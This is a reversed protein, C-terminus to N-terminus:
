LTVNEATCHVNHAGYKVTIFECGAIKVPNPALNPRLSLAIRATWRGAGADSASAHRGLIEVGGTEGECDYFQHTILVNVLPPERWKNGIQETWSFLPRITERRANDSFRQSISNRSPRPIDRGPMTRVYPVRTSLETMGGIYIVLNVRLMM